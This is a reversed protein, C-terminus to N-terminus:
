WLKKIEVNQAQSRLTRPLSLLSLFPPFLSDRSSGAFGGPVTLHPPPPPPVAGPPLSTAPPPVALHPPPHTPLAAHSLTAPDAGPEPARRSGPPMTGMSPPHPRQRQGWPEAAATGVHGPPARPVGTGAARVKRRGRRARRRPRRRCSRGATSRGTWWPHRRPTKARAAPAPYPRPPPPAMQRPLRQSPPSLSVPRAPTVQAVPTM